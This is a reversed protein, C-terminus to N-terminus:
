HCWIKPFLQVGRRELRPRPAAGGLETRHHTDVLLGCGDRHLRISRGSPVALGQGCSSALTTTNTRVTLQAKSGKTRHAKENTRHASLLKHCDAAGARRALLTDKEVIHARISYREPESDNTVTYLRRGGGPGRPRDEISYVIIIYSYNALLSLIQALLKGSTLSNMPHPTTTLVGRSGPPLGPCPRPTIRTRTYRSRSYRSNVQVPTYIVIVTHFALLPVKTHAFFQRHVTMVEYCTCLLLM